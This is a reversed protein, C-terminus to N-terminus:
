IVQLHTIKCEDTLLQHIWDDPARKKAYAPKIVVEINIQISQNLMRSLKFVTIWKNDSIDICDINGGKTYTRLWQEYLKNKVMEQGNKSM